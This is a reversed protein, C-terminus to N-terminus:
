KPVLTQHSCLLVCVWVILCFGFCCLSRRCPRLQFILQLLFIWFVVSIVCSLFHCVPRWSYSTFFISSIAFAKANMVMWGLYAEMLLCDSFCCLCWISLAFLLPDAFSFIILINDERTML